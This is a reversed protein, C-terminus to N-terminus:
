NRSSVIPAPVSILGDGVVQRPRRGIVIRIADGRGHVRSQWTAAAILNAPQVVEVRALEPLGVVHDGKGLFEAPLTFHVVSEIQRETRPQWLASLNRAPRAGAMDDCV